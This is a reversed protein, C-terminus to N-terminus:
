RLRMRGAFKELFSVKGLVNEVDRIDIVIGEGGLIRAEDVLEELAFTAEPSTTLSIAAVELLTMLAELDKAPIPANQLNHPQESERSFRELGIDYPM